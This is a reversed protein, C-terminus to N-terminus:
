AKGKFLPALRGHLGDVAQFLDGLGETEISVEATQLDLDLDKSLQTTRRVRETTLLPLTSYPDSGRERLELWQQVAWFEIRAGSLPSGGHVHSGAKSVGVDIEGQCPPLEFEAFAVQSTKTAAQWIVCTPYGSPSGAANRSQLCADGCAPRVTTADTLVGIIPYRGM